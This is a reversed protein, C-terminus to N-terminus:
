NTIYAGTAVNGYRWRQNQGGHWALQQVETSDHTLGGVVDLALNNGRAGTAPACRWTRGAPSTAM